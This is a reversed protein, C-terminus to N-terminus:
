REWTPGYSRFQGASGCRRCKTHLRNKQKTPPRGRWLTRDKITRLGVTSRAIRKAIELGIAKRLTENVNGTSEWRPKKLYRKNLYRPQGDDLDKVGKREEHRTRVRERLARVRRIGRETKARTWKNRVINRKRQAVRAHRSV